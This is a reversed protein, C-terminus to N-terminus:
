GRKSHATVDGNPGNWEGPVPVKTSRKPERSKYKKDNSM